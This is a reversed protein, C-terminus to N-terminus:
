GTPDDIVEPDSADQNDNSSGDEATDGNDNQGNSNFDEPSTTEQSLDADADRDARVRVLVEDSDSNPLHLRGAFDVYTVALRFVLRSESISRPADFTTVDAAPTALTVQPGEVQEWSLARRDPDQPMSSSGDLTVTAGGDVAQDAGARAQVDDMCGVVALCALLSISGIARHQRNM